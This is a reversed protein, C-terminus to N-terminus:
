PALAALDSVAQPHNRARAACYVLALLLPTLLLSGEPGFAGGSIWNDHSVEIDLLRFVGLGSVPLSYVCGLFFNWAAHFGIPFWLSGTKLYCLAFFVGILALNPLARAADSWLAAPTSSATSDTLFANAAYVNGLHILAFVAAQAGIAARLGLWAHLNQLAYGRFLLEEMFGALLFALAWAALWALTSWASSDFVAPSWGNFTAEGPLWLVGFLLSVALAGAICGASLNRRRCSPHLGLSQLSRRDLTSRCIILWLLVSPYPLVLALLSYQEFFDNLQQQPTRNSVTASFYTAAAMVAQLSWVALIVGLACILLRALPHFRPSLPPRQPPATLDPALSPLPSSV